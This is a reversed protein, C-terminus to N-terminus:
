YCYYGKCGTSLDRPSIAGLVPSEIYNDKIHTSKDIGLIVEKAFDNNLWDKKYTSDFYSSPNAVKEKMYPEDITIYLM